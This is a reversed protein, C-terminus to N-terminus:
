LPKIREFDARRSPPAKAEPRAALAAAVNLRMKSSFGIQVRSPIVPL